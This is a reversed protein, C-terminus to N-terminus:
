CFDRASKSLMITRWFLFGIQDFEKIISINQLPVSYRCCVHHELVAILVSVGAPQASVVVPSLVRVLATKKPLVLSQPPDNIVPEVIIIM